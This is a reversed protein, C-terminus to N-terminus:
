MTRNVQDQNEKLIAELMLYHTKLSEEGGLMETDICKFMKMVGKKKWISNHTQVYIRRKEKDHRSIKKSNNNCKASCTWNLKHFDLQRNQKMWWWWGFENQFWFENEIIKNNKPSSIHFPFYVTASCPISSYNIAFMQRQMTVKHSKHLSKDVFILIWVSAKEAM